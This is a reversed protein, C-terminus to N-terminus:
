KGVDSQCASFSVVTYSFSALPVAARRGGPALTCPAPQASILDPAWSPNALMPDASALVQAECQACATAAGLGVSLTLSANVGPPTVPTSGSSVVRVVVSRRDASRQASTSVLGPGGVAGAQAVAVGVAEPQWTAHVMAHVHGPPQLWSMNPLFFAIGQDFADFHGSRSLCFSATRALLRRQVEAEAEFFANLDAAEQLARAHTHTAANTELNVASLNTKAFIDRAADVGGGAGVHIDVLLQAPDLKAATAAAIEAGSLESPAIYQLTGGVGLAEARAEMAAAQEVFQDNHQENGLEIFKLPYPAPHGDAARLRGLESSADARCYSVLDALEAPTSSSTTTVIADIGMEGCLDLLEFIGWGGLLSYSDGSYANWVAGVSPRLWPAGRWKQWQYYSGSETSPPTGGGGDPWGTVSAFSGGMRIASVGMKQLAEVPGRRVPLGNFRGWEGPQLVVYDIDVTGAGGGVGGSAGVGFQGACRVCSHGLENTPRTCHVAPDSGPAIGECATGASPTLTFNRRVWADASVGCDFQESWEALTANRRYDEIRAVLAVPTACRAFFFGEYEKGAELYLGENGLGRNWMGVMGGAATVRRSSAGHMAPAVTTHLEEVGGAAGADVRSAWADASKGDTVNAQPKEFSEGFLLQSSYGRVQHVFGSDSHCGLYLPNVTHTAPADTAVTINLVAAQMPQPPAAPPPAAPAAARRAARVALANQM